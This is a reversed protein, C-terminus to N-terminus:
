CEIESLSTYVRLIKDLKTERLIQAFEQNPSLVSFLAKADRVTNYCAVLLALLKSYPYVPAEFSLVINRHGKQLSSKITQVAEHIDLDDLMPTQIRVVEPRDQAPETGAANNM